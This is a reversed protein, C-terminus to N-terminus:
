PTVPYSTIVTSCNTKVVLRNTGTKQGTQGYGIYPGPWIVSLPWPLPPATWQLTYTGTRQFQSPALSGQTLTAQNFLSIATWDGVYFSPGKGGPSHNQLIHQQANTTSYDLNNPNATSCPNLPNYSALQFNSPASPGINGTSNNGNGNLTGTTSSTDTSTSDDCNCNVDYGSGPNEDWGGDDDGSGSEGPAVGAQACGLGDGDDAIIPTLTGDGNDFAGGDVCTLGSPDLNSLPSNLAYSYRNFSQPNNARYSGSYPDPSMWRGSTAHYDRFMAHSLETTQNVDEDLQAFHNLALDNGTSSASEGFPLNGYTGEVTGNSTTRVRESGVWDQHEFHINSDSSSWFAYPKGNAYYQANTLAGASNWTTVRQGNLNTGFRLTQGGSVAYDRINLANYEYTATSGGEITLLQNEADYTYTNTGDNILNGVADYQYSSVQNATNFNLQPQPGSGTTINQQWRNGYGDYAFTMGFAPSAGPVTSVSQLRGFADYGFQRAPGLISDAAQQLQSGQVTKTYAYVVSGGSCTTQSSNACTYASSVRGMVDHLYSTFLSNGTEELQPGFPTMTAPNTNYYNNGNTGSGLTSSIYTNQGALNYTYTLTSYSSNGLVTSFETTAPDSALDYTYNLAITQTGGCWGPLCQALQSVRGMIDYTFGEQEILGSSVTTNAYTMQGISYGRPSGNTFYDYGFTKTPTGDTYTISIPRGLSDFQTTTATTVSATTQNAKPRIRTVQLGTTNYQYAFTATGAEPETTSTTRGALDAKFLRTEAGQTVTTTGIGSSYNYAYTTVFGTKGTIDSPCTSPGFSSTGLVGAGSSIECVSTIRGLVDYQTIRSIGNSSTTQVARGGYTMAVSSGDPKSVNTKRGLADYTYQIANSTSCASSWPNESSSSYPVSQYQLLGSADYCSDTLYWNYGNYVAVRKTRGYADLFTEQNSSQSSSMKTVVGVQNPTYTYSTQGGEPTTVTTPRLLEDYQITYTQGSNAGTESTLAGSNVDYAASTSIQVGSSPTPLTTTTTFTQTSDYGYTTTFGGPATTSVPQGTDYYVTTTTLPSASGGVTVLTTTLNGRAGAVSTHQPLGSTSTPTTQDYTYTTQAVQNGSGDTTTSSNLEYIGNTVTYPTAIQELLTSGSYYATNTVVTGTSDLTTKTLLQTDGNYSSTVNAATIPETVSQGDCDGGSGSAGNYCTLVQELLTGSTTSGEYVKQDTTHLNGYFADKSFAYYTQNSKENQLITSYANTGITARTYYRTGDTTTRVLGGATGDANMGSSGNCGGANYQYSITGGTPLTVSAVRGTVDGSMGPTSEYLFQYYSSDPLTVRDVLSVSTAGYEGIGSCGFATAVTYTKYSVTYTATQNNPLNYTLTTNSPATGIVSMSVNGTTDTYQGNSVTIENGNSDEEALSGTAGSNEVVPAEILTGRRNRVTIGLAGRGITYSAQYGSGDTAVSTNVGAPDPGTTAGCNENSQVYQGGGPFYHVTGLPDIYRLGGFSWVQLPSNEPPCKSTTYTMTYAIESQGAPALGQWGWYTGSSTIPQWTTSSGSTVPYWLSSNYALNYTLSIGRGQKSMVPINLFINLNGLNIVDPGNSDSAAWTPIGTQIAQSQAAVAIGMVIMAVYFRVAFKLSM